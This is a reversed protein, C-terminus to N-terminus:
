RCKTQTNLIEYNIETLGVLQFSTDSHNKNDGNDNSHVVLRDIGSRFFQFGKFGAVNIIDQTTERVSRPNQTSFSLSGNSYFSFAFHNCQPMPLVVIKKMSDSADKNCGLAIEPNNNVKIRLCNTWRAADALRQFSINREVPKGDGLGKGDGTDLKSNPIPTSTDVKTKEPPAKAINESPTEKKDGPKSSGAFDSQACSITLIALTLICSRSELTISHFHNLM